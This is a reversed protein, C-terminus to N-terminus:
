AGAELLGQLQEGLRRAKKTQHVPETEAIFVLWLISRFLLCVAKGERSQADCVAGRMRTSM